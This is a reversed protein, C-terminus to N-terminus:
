EGAVNLAKVRVSPSGIPSGEFLLDNGVSTIDELLKFFNGAVTFQEVARM